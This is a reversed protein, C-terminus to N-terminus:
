TLLNQETFSVYSGNGIVVHDLVEIGMLKGAEVLRKTVQIDERSPTPDGSPHNHVLIMSEASERIAAGFVERPHVISVNLGGMSILEERIIRHKCDLLVVFFKEKKQDRLKEHFYAFVQRSGSLLEGPRFNIQSFRRAIELCAKIEIARVLGVGKVSQLEAVSHRSLQRFDGFTKLILNALTIASCGKPGSALIIALLEGDSLTEFGLQLAKERPRELAPMERIMLEPLSNAKPDNSESNCGLSSLDDQQDM